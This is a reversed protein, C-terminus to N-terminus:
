HNQPPLTSFSKKTALILTFALLSSALIIMTVSSFEPVPRALQITVIRPNIDNEDGQPYIREDSGQANTALYAGDPSIVTDLWGWNDMYVLEGNEKAGEISVIRLVYDEGNECNRELHPSYILFEANPSFAVNSICTRPIITRVVGSQLNIYKIGDVTPFAFKKGDPSVVFRDNDFTMLNRLKSGLQLNDQPYFHFTSDHTLYVSTDDAESAVDFWSVNSSNTIQYSVGTRLDYRYINEPYRNEPDNGGVLYFISDGSSSFKAQYITLLYGKPFHDSPASTTELDLKNVKNGDMLDIMALSHPEAPGLLEPKSFDYFRFLIYRGDQSWDFVHIQEVGTADRSNIMEKLTTTNVITRVITPKFMGDGQPIQYDSDTDTVDNISGAATKFILFNLDSAIVLSLIAVVGIIPLSFSPM